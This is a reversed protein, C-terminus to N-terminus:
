SPDPIIDFAVTLRPQPGRFPLTGHWMYSPFLVLTGVSPCLFRGAKKAPPLPPDVQGFQIWGQKEPDDPRVVDPLEVYYASSIWGQPHVHNVHHGQNKLKVSWSGAFRFQASKRRLFPHNPDDPLATIYRFVAREILAKLELITEDEEKFLNFMTQTGGRVTQDHPHREARHFRRLVEALEENFKKVSRYPEPAELRLPKVFLDYNNLDTERPDNLVRLAVGKLAHAMQQDPSDALVEDAVDLAERPRNDALLSKTLSLRYSLDTPDQRIATLYDAIALSQQGQDALSQGRRYRLRPSDVGRALALEAVRQAEDPRGAFRLKDVWSAWLDSARPVRKLADRYSELYRGRRDHLWLLTNLTEHAELYDPRIAIATKYAAIAEDLRDLDYLANGLNYHIEAQRPSLAAAKDILALAEEARGAMKHVVGCNHLANVYNPQIALAKEYATVAADFQEMAKHTNGLATWGRPSEPSYRLATQIAQQAEGYTEALTLALGLNLWGDAYDAKLKIANRYADVAAQLQGADLLVNGLNNHVHPQAPNAKLSRRFFQEAEDSRGRRRKVMGMLQLADAHGPAAKLIRALLGEAETVRGAQAFALAQQIGQSLSISGTNRM